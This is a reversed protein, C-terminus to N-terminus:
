AQSNAGHPQNPHTLWARAEALQLIAIAPWENEIAKELLVDLKAVVENGPM